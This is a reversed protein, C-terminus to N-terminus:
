HATVTNIPMSDVADHSSVSISQISSTSLIMEGVWMELRHGIALAGPKFISGHLRSGCLFAEKPEVVLQGGEVLARGTKPDLLLIRYDSNQTRALITDFPQLSEVVLEATASTKLDTDVIV